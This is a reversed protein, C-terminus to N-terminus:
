ISFHGLVGMSDFQELFPHNEVFGYIQMRSSWRLLLKVNQLRMTPTEMLQFFHRPVGENCLALLAKFICELPGVPGDFHFIDQYGWALLNSWFHAIKLSAM